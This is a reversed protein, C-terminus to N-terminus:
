AAWAAQAGEVRVQVSRTAHWDTASRNSAPGTLRVWSAAPVPATAAEGAGALTIVGGQAVRVSDRICM